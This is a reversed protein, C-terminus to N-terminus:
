NRTKNRKLCPPSVCCLEKELANSRKRNPAVLCMCTATYGGGGGLRQSTRRGVCFETGVFSVTRGQGRGWRCGEAEWSQSERFELARLVGQSLCRVRRDESALREGKACGTGSAGEAELSIMSGERVPRVRDIPGDLLASPDHAGKPQQSTSPGGQPRGGPTPASPATSAGHESNSSGSGPERRRGCRGPEWGEM